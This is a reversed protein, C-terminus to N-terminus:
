QGSPFRQWGLPSGRMRACAGTVGPRRRAVELRKTDLQQMSTIKGLRFRFIFTHRANRDNVVLHRFFKERTRVRDPLVNTVRLRWLVARRAAVHFHDSYDVGMAM